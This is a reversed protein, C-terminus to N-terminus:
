GVSQSDEYEVYQLNIWGQITRGWNGEVELINVGDGETYSGVIEAEANPEKRINLGRIVKCIGTSYTPANPEVYNMFVWGKETYGWAGVQALVKVTEGKMYTGTSQFSTNPGSRINLDDETVTGILADDAATGELSFYETSVWGGEIRAWSGSTTSLQYYAYRVGQKATGVKDYDTSPGQRVNLEGLDIVGYGLVETNGNSIIKPANSDEDSASAATGDMKVYGMGVWGLNTRGWVTGEITQTELIEIRDGNYYAEEVTEYKSDPGKRINLKGATVTGMNVTVPAPTNQSDEVPETAQDEAEGPFKVQQLDIWGAKVTKGDPLKVTGIRGWDTEGATTQELIEIELDLPLQGLVSSVASAKKHVNLNDVAVSCTLINGTPAENGSCGVLGAVLLFSLFLALLRSRNSYCQYKM